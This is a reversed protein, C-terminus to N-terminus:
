GTSRAYRTGHRGAWALIADRGAEPYMEAPLHVHPATAAQAPSFMTPIAGLAHSFRGRRADYLCNM